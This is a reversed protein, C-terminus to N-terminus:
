SSGYITDNGGAGDLTLGLSSNLGYIIENGGSGTANTAAGQVILQEINASLTINQNAVVTDFGESANETIIDTASDVYYVDDGTGGILTNSGALGVLLDNGSGGTLTDSQASGYIIDNGGAGDLTLANSSPFGSILNDLGNGTGSTAPGVLILQEVNAGL